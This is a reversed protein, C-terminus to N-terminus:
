IHIQAIEATLLYILMLLFLTSWLISNPFLILHMNNLTIELM